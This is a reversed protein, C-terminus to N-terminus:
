GSLSLSTSITCCLVGMRTPHFHRALRTSKGCPFGTCCCSRAHSVGHLFCIRAGAESAGMPRTRKGLWEKIMTLARTRKEEPWYVRMTLTNIVYGVFVVCHSAHPEFKEAALASSRRVNVEPDGFCDYASGIACAVAEAILHRIAVCINNNVFM